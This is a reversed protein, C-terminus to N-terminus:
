ILARGGAELLPPRVVQSPGVEGWAMRLGLVCFRVQQLAKRLVLMRLNLHPNQM